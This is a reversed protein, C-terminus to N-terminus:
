TLVRIHPPTHTHLIHTHNTCATHGACGEGGRRKGGRKGRRGGGGGGREGRGKGGREEGERRDEPCATYGSM